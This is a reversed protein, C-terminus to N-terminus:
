PLLRRGTIAGGALGVVLFIAALGADRLFSSRPTVISTTDLYAIRREKEDLALKATTMFEGFAGVTRGLSDKLTRARFQETRFAIRWSDGQATLGEVIGKCKQELIKGTDCPTEVEGRFTIVAGSDAITRAPVVTERPEIKTELSPCCGGLLLAVLTATAVVAHMRERKTM